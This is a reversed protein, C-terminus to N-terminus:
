AEKLAEIISNGWFRAVLESLKRLKEADVDEPTIVLEVDHHKDLVTLHIPRAFDPHSRGPMTLTVLLEGAQQSIKAIYRQERFRPDFITSSAAGIPPPPERYAWEIHGAETKELLLDLIQQKESAVSKM